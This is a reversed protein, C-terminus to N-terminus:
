LYIGFTDVAICQLRYTGTDAYTKAPPTKVTSTTGDGFSWSYSKIPFLNTLTNTFTVAHPKTCGLLPSGIVRGKFGSVVIFSDKLLTVNCSPTPSSLELGM